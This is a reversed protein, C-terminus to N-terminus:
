FCNLLRSVVQFLEKLNFSATIKLTEWEALLVPFYIILVCVVLLLHLYSLYMYFLYYLNSPLVNKHLSKLVENQLYQSTQARIRLVQYCASSSCGNLKIVWAVRSESIDEAVHIYMCVESCQMIVFFFFDHQILFQASVLGQIFSLSRCYFALM